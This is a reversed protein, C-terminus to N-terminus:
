NLCSIGPAQRKMANSPVGGPRSLLIRAESDL